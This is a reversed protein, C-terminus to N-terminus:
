GTKEAVSQAAHVEPRSAGDIPPAEVAHMIEEEDAPAAAKNRKARRRDLEAYAATRREYAAAVMRDTHVQSRITEEFTAATLVDLSLGHTELLQELELKAKEDGAAVGIVLKRVAAVCGAEVKIAGQADAILTGMARPLMAHLMGVKMGRLRLLEWEANVIDRALLWEPLDQPQVDEQVLKVLQEYEAPDEGALIPSRAFLQRIVADPTKLSQSSM